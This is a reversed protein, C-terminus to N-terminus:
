GSIVRIWDSFAQLNLEVQERAAYDVLNGTEDFNSLGGSIGVDGSPMPVARPYVIVDRVQRRALAGIGKPGGAISM